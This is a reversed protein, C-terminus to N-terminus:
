VDVYASVVMDISPAIHIPSHDVLIIWQYSESTNKIRYQWTNYIFVDAM